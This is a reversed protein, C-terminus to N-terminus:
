AAELKRRHLDSMLGLLHRTEESSHWKAPREELLDGLRITRAPPEALPWWIWRKRLGADLREHAELLARTHGFGPAGAPGGDRVAVIFLRPRSQPVWREADL